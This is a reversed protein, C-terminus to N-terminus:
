TGASRPGPTFTAPLEHWGNVPALTEFKRAGARDIKYDPMRQIVENLVHRIEIRALPSGLCRHPGASYALHERANHRDLRMEWPAEFHEPDHNAAYLSMLVKDGAHLQQGGLEIDAVVNRALNELPPFYRLFEEVANEMRAPDARLWARQEPNREMWDLANCLLSVATDFGGTVVTHLMGAAVRVDMPDAALTAKALGTALDERPDKQRQEILRVLREIIEAYGKEFDGGYAEAPAAYLEWEEPDVGGVHLTTMAPVRMCLDRVFEIRGTEIVDDIARSTYEAAANIWNRLHKPTFYPAEIMRRKTHVPPDCENLMLPQPIPPIMVGRRTKDGVNIRNESSFAQWDELVRVADAYRSVVWFGDYTSSWAVPATTLLQQAIEEHRAAHDASNHDYEVVPKAAQLVSM